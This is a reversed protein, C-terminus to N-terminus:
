SIKKILYKPVLISNDSITYFIILINQILSNYQTGYCFQGKVLLGFVWQTFYLQNFSFLEKM